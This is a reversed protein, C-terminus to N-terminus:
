KAAQASPDNALAKFKDTDIYKKYGAIRAQVAPNSALEMGAVRGLVHFSEQTAALGDYKIALLAKDRCSDTLLKVFLRATERNADEADMLTATSLQAVSPHASFAIFTWRALASRDAQTTSSVFCKSLDDAYPGALAVPTTLHLIALIAAVRLTM